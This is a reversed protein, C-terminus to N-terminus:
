HSSVSLAARREFDIAARTHVRVSRPGFRLAELQGGDILKQIQKRSVGWYTALAAVTVFPDSHSSLDRLHRFAVSSM